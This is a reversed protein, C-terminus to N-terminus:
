SSKRVPSYNQMLEAQMKTKNITTELQLDLRWVLWWWLLTAHGRGAWRRWGNGDDQLVRLVEWGANKLVEDDGTPWHLLAAPLADSQFVLHVVSATKIRCDAKLASRASSKNEGNRFWHVTMLNWESEWFHFSFLIYVTKRQTSKKMNKLLRNFIFIFLQSYNLFQNMEGSLLSTHVPFFCFQM